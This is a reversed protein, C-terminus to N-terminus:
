RVHDFDEPKGFLDVDTAVNDGEFVTVSWQTDQLSLELHYLHTLRIEYDGVPLGYFYYGGDPGTTTAQVSIGRQTIILSVGAAPVGRAELVGTVSGVAAESNIQDDPLPTPGSVDSGCALLLVSAFTLTTMQFPQSLHKKAETKM